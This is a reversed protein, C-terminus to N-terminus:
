FNFHVWVGYEIYNLDLEVHTTNCNAPWYLLYWISLHKNDKM